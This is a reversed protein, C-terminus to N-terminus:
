DKPEYQKFDRCLTTAPIEKKECWWRQDEDPTAYACHHCSADLIEIKKGERCYQHLGCMICGFPKKEGPEKALKAVRRSESNLVREIKAKLFLIRDDDREVRIPWYSSDDKNYAVFLLSNSEFLCIILQCQDYYKPEATKIDDKMLAKFRATNMSKIELPEDGEDWLIIGDIYAKVHGYYALLKHQRGTAPDKGIVPFGQGRM